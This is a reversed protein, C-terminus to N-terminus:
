DAVIDVFTEFNRFEKGYYQKKLRYMKIDRSIEQVDINLGISSFIGSFNFVRENPYVSKRYGAIAKLGIFRMPKFTFSLGFNAFGLIGSTDSVVAKTISNASTLKYQGAALEMPFGLSIFRSNYYILETNLSGVNVRLATNIKTGEIEKQVPLNENIRYYGLALRLKDKALIGADYGYINIAQHDYVSVRSDLRVQPRILKPKLIKLSDSIFEERTMTQTYCLKLLGFFLLFFLARMIFLEQLFIYFSM